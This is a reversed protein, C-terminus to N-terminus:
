ERDDKKKIWSVYVYDYKAKPDNTSRGDAVHATVYKEYHCEKFGIPAHLFDCDKPEPDIFVKDTPVWYEFSYWTVSPGVWFLYSAAGVFILGWFVQGAWTSVAEWDVTGRKPSRLRRLMELTLLLLLALLAVGVVGYWM